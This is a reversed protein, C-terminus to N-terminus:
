ESNEVSRRSNKTETEHCAIEFQLFLGDNRMLAAKFPNIGKILQRLTIFSSSMYPNACPILVSVIDLRYLFPKQPRRNGCSGLDFYFGPLNASFDPKNVRRQRDNRNKMSKGENEPKRRSHVSGIKSRGSLLASQSPRRRDSFTSIISFAPKREESSNRLFRDLLSTYAFRDLNGTSHM